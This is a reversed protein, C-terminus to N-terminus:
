YKIWRGLDCSGSRYQILGVDQRLKQVLESSKTANEDLIHQKIENRLVLMQEAHWPCLREVHREPPNQVHSTTFNYWELLIMSFYFDLIGADSWQFVMSPECVDEHFANDVHWLRYSERTTPGPMVRILYKCFLFHIIKHLCPLDRM